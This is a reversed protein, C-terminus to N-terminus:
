NGGKYSWDIKGDIEKFLYVFQINYEEICAKKFIIALTEAEFYVNDVNGSKWTVSVRYKTM